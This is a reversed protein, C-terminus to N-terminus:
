DAWTKRIEFRSITKTEDGHRIVHAEIVIPVGRPYRAEIAQIEQLIRIRRFFNAVDVTLGLVDFPTPAAIDNWISVPGVTDGAGHIRGPFLFILM